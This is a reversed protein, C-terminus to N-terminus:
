IVLIIMVFGQVNEKVPRLFIELPNKFWFSITKITRFPFIVLFYFILPM